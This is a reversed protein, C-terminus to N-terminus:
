STPPRSRAWAGGGTRSWRAVPRISVAYLRSRHLKEAGALVGTCNSQILAEDDAIWNLGSAFEM